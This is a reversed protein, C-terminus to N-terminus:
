QLSLTEHHNVTYMEAMEWAGETVVSFGGLIQAWEQLGIALSADLLSWVAGLINLDSDMVQYTYRAGGMNEIWSVVYMCLQPSVYFWFETCRGTMNSYWVNTFIYIEFWDMFWRYGIFVTDGVSLDLVPFAQNGLDGSRSGDLKRPPLFFFSLSYLSGSSLHFDKLTQSRRQRHLLPGRELSTAKIWLGRSSFGRSSGQCTVCKVLEYCQSCSQNGALIIPKCAVVWLDVM